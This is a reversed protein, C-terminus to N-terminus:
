LQFFHVSIMTKFCKKTITLCIILNQAQLDDFFLLKLVENLMEHRVFLKKMAGGLNTIIKLPGVM